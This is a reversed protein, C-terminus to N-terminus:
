WKLGQDETLQLLAMMAPEMGSLSSNNPLRSPYPMARNNTAPTRVMTNSATRRLRKNPRAEIPLESDREVAGQALLRSVVMNSTTYQSNPHSNPFLPHQTPTQRRQQEMSATRIATAQRASSSLIRQGSYHTIRRQSALDPFDIPHTSNSTAATTTVTEDLEINIPQSM